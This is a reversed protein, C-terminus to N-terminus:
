MSRRRSVAPPKIPQEANGPAVLHHHVRLVLAIELEESAGTPSKKVVMSRTIPRPLRTSQPMNMWFTITAARARLKCVQGCAAHFPKAFIMAGMMPMPWSFPTRCTARDHRHFGCLHGKVRWPPPRSKVRQTASSGGNGQYAPDHGLGAGFGRSSATLGAQEAREGGGLCWRKRRQLAANVDGPYQLWKM